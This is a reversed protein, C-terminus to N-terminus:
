IYAKHVCRQFQNNNKSYIQANTMKDQQRIKESQDIGYASLTRTVITINVLLDKSLRCWIIIIFM